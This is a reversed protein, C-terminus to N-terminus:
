SIQTTVQLGKCLPEEKRVKLMKAGHQATKQPSINRQEGVTDM